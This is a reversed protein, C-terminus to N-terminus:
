AFKSRAPAAAGRLSLPRGAPFETLSRTPSVSWHPARPCRRPFCPSRRQDRARRPTDRPIRGRERNRGPHLCAPSILVISDSITARGTVYSQCWARTTLIGALPM